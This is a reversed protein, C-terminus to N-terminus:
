MERGGKWERVLLRGSTSPEGLVCLQTSETEASLSGVVRMPVLSVLACGRFDRRGPTSRILCLLVGM